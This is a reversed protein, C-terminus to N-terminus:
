KDKKKGGRKRPTKKKTEKEEKEEEEVAETAKLLAEAKEMVDQEVERMAQAEPTKDLFDSDLGQLYLM